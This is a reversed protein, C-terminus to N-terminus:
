AALLGARDAPVPLAPLGGKADIVFVCWDSSTAIRPRAAAGDGTKGSGPAGIVLVTKDLRALPMALRGRGTPLLRDGEVHRGLEFGEPRREPRPIGAAKRARRERRNRVRETRREDPDRLEEVSRGRFLEAACAVAPGLGLAMTSWARVHPWAAELAWGPDEWIGGARHMAALAAEMQGTIRSWPLLTVGLGVVAPVFVATRRSRALPTVALALVMAPLSIAV